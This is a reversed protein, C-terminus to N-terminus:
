REEERIEIGARELAALVREPVDGTAGERGVSVIVMPGNITDDSRISYTAHAIETALENVPLRELKGGENILAQAAVAPMPLGELWGGVMKQMAALDNGDVEIIICHRDGPNILLARTM